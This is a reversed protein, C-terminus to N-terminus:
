CRKAHVASHSNASISISKVLGTDNVHIPGEDIVSKVIDGVQPFHEVATTGGVFRALLDMFFATGSRRTFARARAVM